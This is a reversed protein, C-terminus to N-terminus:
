SRQEDSEEMIHKRVSKDYAKRAKYMFLNVIWGDLVDRIWFVLFYLMLVALLNHAFTVVLYIGIVGLIISVTYSISQSWTYIRYEIPKLQAKTLKLSHLSSSWEFLEFIIYIAICNLLTSM